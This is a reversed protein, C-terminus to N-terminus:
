LHSGACQGLKKNKVFRGDKGTMEPHPQSVDPGWAGLDGVIWLELQRAWRRAM